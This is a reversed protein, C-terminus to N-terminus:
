NMRPCMHGDINIPHGCFVCLPRGAAVVDDAHECFAAAQGRTIFARVRGADFGPDPEGDETTPTMEDLQLVLRDNRQDYALGVTGLVFEVEIPSALQMADELPRDEAEPADALLQRLYQSIAAIQQKECKMTVRRNDARVQLLFIREGPVGLTGTTFASAKDFDYFVSM